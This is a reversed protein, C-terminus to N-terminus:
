RKGQFIWERVRRMAEARDQERFGGVDRRPLHKGGEVHYRVWDMPWGATVILRAAEMTVKVTYKVIISSAMGSKLFPTSSQRPQKLTSPALRTFGVGRADQGRELQRRKGDVFIQEVQPAISQMSHIRDLIGQNRQLLTEPM